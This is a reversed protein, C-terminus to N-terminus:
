EDEKGSLKDFYTFFYEKAKEIMTDRGSNWDESTINTRIDPDIGFETHKGEKDLIPCASFRVNWGNPLMSNFPLGSGGGTKDGIITVHELEKMLMVFYNASSYVSRNTLIVVPRLWIAGKSPELYIEQPPSFDNHGKGIKHQIYGCHIKEKTFSAALKEASTLIGGSNGRIDIILAKADKMNLLMMTLNDTNFSGAFSEVYAYGISDPLMTYKIGNTTRYNNGLYNRQISDSFNMPYDQHWDRYQTTGYISSLNVHGDRLENLMEGLVDFLQAENECADALPKYKDYVSNWNLGFEEQAQQFFCYREDIISWLAEFNGKNSNNFNDEEICSALLLLAVLYTIYKKM